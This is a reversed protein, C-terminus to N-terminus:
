RLIVLAFMFENWSAIFTLIAVVSIAPKSIPVVIRMLTNFRSAGDILSVEYLQGPISIMGTFLLLFM